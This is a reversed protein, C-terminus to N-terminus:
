GALNLFFPATNDDYCRDIESLCIRITEETTADKPVGQMRLVTLFLSSRMMDVSM